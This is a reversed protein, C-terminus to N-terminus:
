KNEQLEKITFYLILTALVLLHSFELALCCVYTNCMLLNIFVNRFTVIDLTLYGEM